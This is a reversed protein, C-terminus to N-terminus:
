DFNITKIKKISFFYKEFFSLKIIKNPYLLNYRNVGSVLLKSAIKQLVFPNNVGMKVFNNYIKKEIGIYKNSQLSLRKINNYERYFALPENIYFVKHFYFLRQYFDIDEGVELTEDFFLNGVFVEKRILPTSAKVLWTGLANWFVYGTRKHAKNKTAGYRINLKENFENIVELSSHVCDIEKNGELIEVQILLKDKKWLDDDDLFAIYSGKAKRIGFNRASSVGGNEKYCCCCNDYQDCITQAYMNKSGDDVVLVEINSYSQNVVSLIAENLFEPRNYTPIIVSVLPEKGM